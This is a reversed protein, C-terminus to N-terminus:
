LANIIRKVENQIDVYADIFKDAKSLSPVKDFSLGLNKLDTEVIAKKRSMDVISNQSSQYANKLATQLKTFQMIIDNVKSYEDMANKIAIDLDTIINLDVKVKGMEVKNSFNVGSTADMFKHFSTKNEM